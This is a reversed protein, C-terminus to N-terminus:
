AWILLVQVSRFRHHVVSTFTPRLAERLLRAEFKAQGKLHSSAGVMLCHHQSGESPFAPTNFMKIISNNAPNLAKIHILHHRSGACIAQVKHRWPNNHNLLSHVYLYTMTFRSYNDLSPAMTRYSTGRSM